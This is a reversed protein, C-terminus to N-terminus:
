YNVLIKILNGYDNIFSNVNRDTFGYFKKATFLSTKIWPWFKGEDIAAQKKRLAHRVYSVGEAMKTLEAKAEVVIDDAVNGMHKLIDLMNKADEPIAKENAEIVKDISATVASLIIEEQAELTEAVSLATCIKTFSNGSISLYGSLEASIRQKEKALKNKAEDLEGYVRLHEDQITRLEAARNQIKALADKTENTLRTYIEQEPMNVPIPIVDAKKNAINPLRQQGLNELEEEEEDVDGYISSEVVFVDDVSDYEVTVGVTAMEDLYEVWADEDLESLSQYEQTDMGYYEPTGDYYSFDIEAPIELTAIHENTTDISSDCEKEISYTDDENYAVTVGANRMETCYTDKTPEDQWLNNLLHYEMRDSGVKLNIASTYTRYDIEEPFEYMNATVETNYAVSVTYVDKVSDYLVSIGRTFMEGLYEQRDSDELNDILQYQPSDPGFYSTEGELYGEFAIEEPIEFKANKEILHQINEAIEAKYVDAMYKKHSEKIYGLHEKEVITDYPFTDIINLSEDIHALLFQRKDVSLVDSNEFNLQEVKNEFDSQSTITAAVKTLFDVDMDNQSSLRVMDRRFFEQAYSDPFQRLCSQRLEEIDGYGLVEEPFTALTAALYKMGKDNSKQTSLAKAVKYAQKTPVTISAQTLRQSIGRMEAVVDVPETSVQSNYFTKPTDLCGRLNFKPIKEVFKNLKNGFDYDLISSM